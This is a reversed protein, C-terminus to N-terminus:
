HQTKSKASQPAPPYRIWLLLDLLEANAKQGADLVVAIRNDGQRLDGVAVPYEVWKDKMKGGELKKGNVSVTLVAADEIGTVRLAATVTVKDADLRDSVPLVVKETRGPSLKRPREPLPYPRNLFRLGDHMWSRAGSVSRAGTTMVKDMSALAVPDGIERFVPSKPNFLNFTYM